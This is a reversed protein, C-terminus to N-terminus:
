TSFVAGAHVSGVRSGGAMAAKRARRNSYMTISSMLLAVAGVGLGAVAVWLAIDPNSTLSREGAARVRAPAPAPRAGGVPVTGIREQQAAHQQALQQQAAMQQRAAMQRRMAEIEEETPEDDLDEEAPPAPRQPVAARQGGRMNMQFMRAVSPDVGEASM